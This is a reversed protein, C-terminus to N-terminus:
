GRANGLLNEKSRHRKAPGRRATRAVDACAADRWAGIPTPAISVPGLWAIPAVVHTPPNAPAYGHLLTSRIAYRGMALMPPPAPLSMQPQVSGTVPWSHAMRPRLLPVANTSM